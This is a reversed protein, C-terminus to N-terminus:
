SRRSSLRYGVGKVTRLLKKDRRGDIKKRLRYVIVDITNSMADFSDDWVHEALDTRTVTEDLRTLLYELVGLEKPALEVTEGDVRVERSQPNFTLDDAEVSSLPKERRRLLSRARALLEEVAFPKVLYDDAGEDLGDVRDGVGSRATLMLIPMSLGAGRWRKVLELGSPGRPLTWDLIVLDYANFGVLEDAQLGDAAADVAHSERQLLSVLSESLTADDEVVLIRM